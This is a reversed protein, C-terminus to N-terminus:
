CWSGPPGIGSGVNKSDVTYMTYSILSILTIQASKTFLLQNKQDAIGMRVTQSPSPETHLYMFSKTDIACPTVNQM